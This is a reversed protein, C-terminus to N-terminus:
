KSLENSVLNSYPTHRFPDKYLACVARERCGLDSAGISVLIKDVKDLLAGYFKDSAKTEQFM